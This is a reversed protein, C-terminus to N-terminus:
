SRLCYLAYYPRGSEDRKVEVGHTDHGFGPFKADFSELGLLFDGFARTREGFREDPMLLSIGPPYRVVQAALVRGELKATPVQEVDGHVLRAFTERPALVPEPLNSFTGDLSGLVDHERIAAHMEAALERLGLKAYREPNDAVLGPLARELPAHADYLEKFRM